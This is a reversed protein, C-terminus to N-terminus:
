DTRVEKKEWRVHSAQKKRRAPKNDRRKEDNRGGDMRQLVQANTPDRPQNQEDVPVM